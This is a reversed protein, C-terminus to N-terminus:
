RIRTRWKFEPTPPWGRPRSSMRQESQPEAETQEHGPEVESAQTVFDAHTASKLDRPDLAEASESPDAWPTGYEDEPTETKVVLPSFPTHEDFDGSYPHRGNGPHDMVPRNAIIQDNSPDDASTVAAPDEEVPHLTSLSGLDNFGRAEGGGFGSVMEGLKAAQTADLDSGEPKSAAPPRALSMLPHRDPAEVAPTAPSDAAVRRYEAVAWGSRPSGSPNSDVVRPREATSGRESRHHVSVVTPIRELAERKVARADLPEAPAEITREDEPEPEFSQPELPPTSGLLQPASGEAASREEVAARMAELGAAVRDDPSDIHVAREAESGREAHTARLDAAAPAEAIGTEPARAQVADLDANTAEVAAVAPAEAISPEPARVDKAEVDARTAEVSVPVAAEAIDPELARADLIGDELCPRYLGRVSTKEGERATEILLDLSSVILADAAAPSAHPGADLLRAAIRGLAARPSTSEITAIFPRGSLLLERWLTSSPQDVAIVDAGLALAAGVGGVGSLRLPGAKSSGPLSGRREVLSDRPGPEIMVVRRPPELTRALAALLESKGSAHPGAIVLGLGQRCAAHIAIEAARDLVSRGVLDELSLVQDPHRTFRIITGGSADEEPLVLAHLDASLWGRGGGALARGPAVTRILRDALARIKPASLSVDIAETMGGSTVFVRDPGAVLVESM